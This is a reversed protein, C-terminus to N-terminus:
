AKGTSRSRRHSLPQTYNGLLPQQQYLNRKKEPSSISSYTRSPSLSSPSSPSPSSPSSPSPSPSPSPSIRSSPQPPFSTKSLTLAPLYLSSNDISKRRERKLERRWVIGKVKNEQTLPTSSSSPSSSSSSSSSSSHKMRRVDEALMELFPGLLGYHDGYVLPLIGDLQAFAHVEGRTCLVIRKSLGVDAMKKLLSGFNPDTLGGVGCGVFLMTKMVALASLLAQLHSKEVIENYHSADLVVDRARSFHGHWHLVKHHKEKRLYDDIASREDSYHLPVRGLMDELLSDYNTTTVYCQSVSVLGKMASSVEDNTVKQGAFAENLWVQYHHASVEEKLFRVIEGAVPFIEGRDVKEQQERAWRGWKEDPPALDECQRIGHRLLGLWSLEQPFSGNIFTASVSLGSGCVLVVNEEEALREVLDHYIQKKEFNDMWCLFSFSVVVLFLFL